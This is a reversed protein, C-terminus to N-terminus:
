AFAIRYCSTKFPKRRSNRITPRCAGTLTSIVTTMWPFTTASPAPLLPELPFSERVMYWRGNEGAKYEPLTRLEVESAARTTQVQISASHDFCKVDVSV